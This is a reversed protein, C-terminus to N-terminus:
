NSWTYGNTTVQGGGPTEDVAHAPSAFALGAAAIVAATILM